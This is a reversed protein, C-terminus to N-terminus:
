LYYNLVIDNNLPIGNGSILLLHQIVFPVGIELTIRNKVNNITSNNSFTFTYNNSDSTEINVNINNTNAGALQLYKYKYYKYKLKHNEM